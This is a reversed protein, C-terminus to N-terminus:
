GIFSTSRSIQNYTSRSDPDYGNFQPQSEMKCGYVRVIGDAGGVGYLMEQPHFKLSTTGTSYARPAARSLSHTLGAVTFRSLVQRQSISHVEITQSRHYSPTIASSAAFVNARPHADFAALGDRHLNWSEQLAAPQRVDWLRVAGDVSASMLGMGRWCVNQIWYTHDKYTRMIADDPKRHDYVRVTGDGFGAAFLHPLHPHVHFSLATVPTEMGTSIVSVRREYDANWINITPSDGACLLTGFVQNWATVVGAGRKLVVRDEIAEFSSVLEVGSSSSQYAPDYNRYLRVQGNASAVLLLGGADDNIFRVSTIGVSKPDGPSFTSLVRRKSWDWVSVVDDDNSVALHTDFSHFAMNIIHGKGQLSAVTRDWQSHAAVDAQMRAESMVKDNRTRRWSFQNYSVSGPEHQEMQRMQPEMFYETEWDFYTSKLPLVDERIGNDLGYCGGNQHGDQAPWAQQLQQQQQGRHGSLLRTRRRANLRHMDDMILRDIVEHPGADPHAASRPPELPLANSDYPSRYAALSIHPGPPAPRDREKEKERDTAALLRSGGSVMSVVSPTPSARGDGNEALNTTSASGSPFPFGRAMNTLATAFSSARKITSSARSATTTGTDSRKATPRAPQQSHVSTPPSHTSGNSSTLSNVRSRTGPGSIPSTLGANRLASNELRAFSSALLHATIWDSITQAHAAVEPYTDLTLEQLGVYISYFQQLIARGEEQSQEDGRSNLWREIARAALDEQVLGEAAARQNTEFYVWAAVVFYGRWEKVICSTLILLEKRAMPSGDHRNIGFVAYVTGLELRLIDEEDVVSQLAGAGSGGRKTEESSASAGLFTSLAYLSAARVEPARDETALVVLRDHIEDTAAADRIADNNDWILAICLAAWLRALYDGEQLRTVCNTFVLSNFCADQGRPFDRALVALIFSCMARHESANSLMPHGPEEAMAFVDAFYKYGNSNFLDVQCSKDVALIRAWIFILVPRLEMSPAQLLKQVYPFIGIALALNVAWPGLDVFQALLILAKLRHTHSLLVQLLIPLQAPPKRPVLYGHGPPLRAEAERAALAAARQALNGKNKEPPDAAEPPLSHPGVKTLADGGRDLWVQFAQLHQEFFKSPIYGAGPTGAQAARQSSTTSSSSQSGTPQLSANGAAKQVALLAPLQKVVGDVALDWSSWLTHTNTPPLPPYTHPTCQYSKMVREALLFNRFLAAVLLDQRYLRRFVHSPFTTWAITDTIAIFIWNLEGLPTRRDKIDGPIRMVMEATVDPPLQNHLVFYRLAIEMPSTLCSTFLDAPLEPCMPLTEHAKCAALQISDLFPFYTDPNVNHLQAEEDRREAFKIFNDLLNGAGSCEWIYICPSGLWSQLESLSLPIYQSYNKNFVWLEGSPTPKPVGHGNYYILAREDKAIRRLNACFKRTDEISPDLYPKYKIRPNLSDFQQHLNTGIAELAKASPMTRPDVWCELFLILAANVTKLRDRLRWHSLKPMGPQPPSPNGCNQHRKASWFPLGPTIDPFSSTSEIQVFAHQDLANHNDNTSNSQEDDSIGDSDSEQGGNSHYEFRSHGAVPHGHGSYGSAALDEHGGNVNVRKM